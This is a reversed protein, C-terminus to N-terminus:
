SVIVLLNPLEAALIKKKVFHSINANKKNNSKGGNEVASPPWRRSQVDLSSCHFKHILVTQKNRWLYTIWGLALTVLSIHTPFM